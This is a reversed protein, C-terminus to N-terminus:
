KKMIPPEGAGTHQGIRRKPDQEQSGTGALEQTDGGGGGNPPNMTNKAASDKHPTKVNTRKAKAMGVRAPLDHALVVLAALLAIASIAAAPWFLRPVYRLEIEGARPPVVVGTLAYDVTLM